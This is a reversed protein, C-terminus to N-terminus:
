RLKFLLDKNNEKKNNTQKAKKNKSVPNRQGPFLATPWAPRLSVSIYGCRGRTNFAYAVVVV